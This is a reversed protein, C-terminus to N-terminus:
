IPNAVGLLYRGQLPLGATGSRKMEKWEVTTFGPPASTFHVSIRVM